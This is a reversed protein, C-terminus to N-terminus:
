LILLFIEIALAAINIILLRKQQQQSLDKRVKISVIIGIVTFIIGLITNMISAEVQELIPYISIILGAVSPTTASFYKTKNKQQYKREEIMQPTNLRSINEIAKDDTTENQSNLIYDKLQKLKSIFLVKGGRGFFGLYPKLKKNHYMLWGVLYIKGEVIYFHIYEAFVSWTGDEIGNNYTDKEKTPIFGLLNLGQITLYQLRKNDKENTDITMFVFPLKNKAHRIFYAILLATGIAIGIIMLITPLNTNLDMFEMMLGAVLGIIMPSLIATFFIIEDTKFELKTDEPFQITTLINNCRPCNSSENDM